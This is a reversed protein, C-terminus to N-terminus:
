GKNMKYRISPRGGTTYDVTSTIENNELMYNLYRRVTIRSLHIEKAIEDSTLFEDRRRGLYDRLLDLTPQQIGKVQLPAANEAGQLSTGLLADIESQTMKKENTRLTQIRQFRALAAQFRDYTFPKVIYDLIGASIIESIEAPSSAATIMILAPANKESHCARIFDIGNMIPMYYDVIALDTKHARIYLLADRGNSFTGDLIFAPNAKLYQQNISAVMPDDEIIITHYM